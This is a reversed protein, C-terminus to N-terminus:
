RNARLGNRSDYAFALIAADYMDPSPADEPQKDIVIHGTSNEEWEPQSLQVLLTDLNPISPDIFLCLAPDVDEGDLLQKTRLARMRLAWAMQANRHAFYAANTQGRLYETKPGEVAAGFNIGHVAYPLPAERQMQRLHSWVGGGYGGGADYYMAVAGIDSAHHNARTATEAFSPATWREAGTIYPGIRTVMANRDAGTDAIDLGVFPRGRVLDDEGAYKAWADVCAQVVGFSLVKRAEGLDDVQGLWMHPYREPEDRLTIQRLQEQEPTRWAAPLDLFNGHLVCSVDAIRGTIFDQYVPDSRYRPNFTCWIESGANRFVTPYALARSDPSLTEAQEIWLLDIGEVSLIRRATGHSDSMGHFLIRGGMPTGIYNIRVDYGPQYRTRRRDLKDIWSVIAQRSSDELTVQVERACLVRAPRRKTREITEVRHLVGLAAATSKGSSRGGWLAYFQKRDHEAFLPMFHPPVQAELGQM